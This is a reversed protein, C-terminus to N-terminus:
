EKGTIILIDANPKKEGAPLQSVEGNVAEAIMAAAAKANGSLDVVITKKYTQQAANAIEGVTAQPYAETVDNGIERGFGAIVTGNYVVVTVPAPTPSASEGQGAVQKEMTTEPDVIPAANILSNTSPRFLYAMKAQKYMLVKDGNQANKFFALEKLKDKNSVTVLEPTENKPLQIRAGVKKVMDSVAEARAKQPDRLQTVLSQYKDYFYYSPAILILLAVAVIGM